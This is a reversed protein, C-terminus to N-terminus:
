FQESLPLWRAPTSANIVPKVIAKIHRDVRNLDPQRLSKLESSFSMLSRNQWLSLRRKFHIKPMKNDTFNPESQTTGTKFNQSQTSLLFQGFYSFVSKILWDALKWSCKCSCFHKAFWNSMRIWSEFIRILTLAIRFMGVVWDFKAQFNYKFKAFVTESISNRQRSLGKGQLYLLILMCFVSISM